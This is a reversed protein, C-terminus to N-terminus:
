SWEAFTCRFAFSSTDLMVKRLPKSDTGALDFLLKIIFYGTSYGLVLVSLGSIQQLIPSLNHGLRGSILLFGFCLPVGFLIAPWGITIATFILAIGQEGWTAIYVNILPGSIVRLYLYLAIWIWLFHIRPIGSFGKPRNTSIKAAVPAFFIALFPAMIVVFLDIFFQYWPVNGATLVWEFGFQFVLSSAYGLLGLYLVSITLGAVIAPIRSHERALGGATIVAVSVAVVEAFIRYLWHNGWQPLNSPSYIDPQNGVVVPMAGWLASHVAWYYLIAVAPAALWPWRPRQSLEARTELQSREM